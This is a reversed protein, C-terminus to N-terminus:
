GKKWKKYVEKKHRLESLSKKSLWSPRRVDKIEQVNTQVRRSGPLPSGQVDAMEGSGRKRWPLIGHSDEM